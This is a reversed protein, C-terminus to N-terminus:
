NRATTATLTEIRAELMTNKNILNQIMETMSTISDQMSHVNALTAGLDMGEVILPADLVFGGDSSVFLSSSTAFVPLSLTVYIFVAVCLASPLLQSASPIAPICRRRPPLLSGIPPLRTM